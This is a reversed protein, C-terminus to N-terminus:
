YPKAEEKTDGPAPTAGEKTEEKSM